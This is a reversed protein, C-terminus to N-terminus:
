EPHTPPGVNTEIPLPPAILGNRETPKDARRWIQAFVNPPHDRYADEATFLLHDRYDRVDGSPAEAVLNLLASARTSTDAVTAVYASMVGFQAALEGSWELAAYAEYKAWLRGLTMTDRDSELFIARTNKGEPASRDRIVVFGDPNLGYSRGRYRWAHRLHQGERDSALIEFEPRERVALVIAIRFLAVMLAHEVHFLLRSPKALPRVRDLRGAKVLLRQGAPTLAYAFPLGLGRPIRDVLGTDFLARLRRHLNSGTHKGSLTGGRKAVAAAIAKVPTRVVSPPILWLLLAQSLFRHAFIAALIDLDHAGAPIGRLTPLRETHSRYRGRRSSPEPM